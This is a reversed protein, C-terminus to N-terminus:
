PYIETTQPLHKDVTIIRAPPNPIMEKVLEENQLAAQMLDKMEGEMLEELKQAFHSDRPTDTGRM